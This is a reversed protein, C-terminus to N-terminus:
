SVEYYEVDDANDWVAAFSVESAKMAFKTLQRDQWRHSLFDIFDEVEVLKEKPLKHLKDILRHEQSISDM